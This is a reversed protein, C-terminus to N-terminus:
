YINYRNNLYNNVADKEGATLERNFIMVEWMYGLFYSGSYYGLDHDTGFDVTNTTTSCLSNTNLWNAWYGPKSM